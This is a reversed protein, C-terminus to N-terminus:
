VSVTVSGAFPHVAVSLASTIGVAPSGFAFAPDGCDNVQVVLVTVNFPDEVVGPTVNPQAPGPPNM